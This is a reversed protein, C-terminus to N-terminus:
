CKTGGKRFEFSLTNGFHTTITFMNAETPVYFTLSYCKHEKCWNTTWFRPFDYFDALGYASFDIVEIKLDNLSLKFYTDNMQIDPQQRPYIYLERLYGYKFVPCLTFEARGYRETKPTYHITDGIAIRREEM